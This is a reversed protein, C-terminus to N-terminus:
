IVTRAVKVPCLVFLVDDRFLPLAPPRYSIREGKRRERIRKAIKATLLKVGTDM